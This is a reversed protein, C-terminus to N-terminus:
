RGGGHVRHGADPAERKQPSWDLRPEACSFGMLGAESPRGRFHWRLVGYRSTFKERARGSFGVAPLALLATGLARLIRIGRVGRATWPGCHLGVFRYLSRHYEIRTRVPKPLKSSVGLGHVATADCVELVRWHARHMRWCWDTDELFFFYDECLPGSPM